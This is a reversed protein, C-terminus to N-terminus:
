QKQVEEFCSKVLSCFYTDSSIWPIKEGEEWHQGNYEKRRQRFDLAQRKPNRHPERGLPLVRNRQLVASPVEFEHSDKDEQRVCRASLGKM